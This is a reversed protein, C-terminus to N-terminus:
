RIRREMYALGYLNLAGFVQCTLSEGGICATLLETRRDASVLDDLFRLYGGYKMAFRCWNNILVKLVNFFEDTSAPQVCYVYITELQKQNGGSGM